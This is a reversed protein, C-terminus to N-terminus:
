GIVWDQGAVKLVFNGQETEVARNAMEYYLTRSVRAWLGRRIEIAPLDDGKYPLLTMPHDPGLTVEDGLNTIICLSDEGFDALVAVFPLDDVRIRMKEVPTVLVYDEGDRRLVSAFLRVLAERQIQSGEHWWSGDARIVIDIDGCSQPQWQDVPLAQNPKVLGLLSELNSLSM